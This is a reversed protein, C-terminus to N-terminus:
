RPLHERWVSSAKVYGPEKAAGLGDESVRNIPHLLEIGYMKKLIELFFVGM